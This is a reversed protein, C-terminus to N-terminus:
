RGNEDVPQGDVPFTFTFTTGSGVESDISVSAAHSEIIRNCTMLGYGHGTKKTTLHSRFLRDKIQPPIGVGNDTISLAVSGAAATTRVTIEGTDKGKELIADAANNLLNLLLQAIQDTDMDFRSIGTDLDTCISVQKFKKQVTVFSLVDSIVTNLNAVTRKSDMKTYDMLGSTFREMKGVNKKLKDLSATVKELNGKDMAMQAIEVGGLIFGLFNNLEHAISSAMVGRDAFKELEFLRQENEKQATVDDLTVIFDGGVNTDPEITIGHVAFVRETDQGKAVMHQRLRGQGWKRARILRRAWGRFVADPFVDKISQGYTSEGVQTHPVLARLARLGSANTQTLVNNSDFVFVGHNVSNLIELYWTNLGAIEMFLFSNTILPTITTALTALLEVEDDVFPKNNVKDGLGLIGVLTEGHFLPMVMRVGCDHMHQLPNAQASDGAPLDTLRCAVPGGEFCDFWGERCLDSVEDGCAHFKGTGFYLPPQDSSRPNRIIAFSSTVAFQGSVTLLLLEILHNFDPRNAFQRTLKSLADMALIKKDVLLKDTRTASLRELETGQTNTM